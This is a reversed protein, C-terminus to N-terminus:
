IGQESYCFDVYKSGYLSAFAQVDEKSADDIDAYIIRLEESKAWISKGFNDVTYRTNSCTTRGFILVTAKEGNSATSVERDDISIFNYYYNWFSEDGSNAKASIGRYGAAALLVFLFLVSLLPLRKKM